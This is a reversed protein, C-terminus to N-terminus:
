IASQQELLGNLTRAQTATRGAIEGFGARIEAIDHALGDLSEVIRENQRTAATLAGAVDQTSTTDRSMAAALENSTDSLRQALEGIGRLAQNSAEAIRNANEAGSMAADASESIAAAAEALRHTVAQ